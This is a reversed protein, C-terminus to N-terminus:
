GGPACVILASAVEQGEVRASCRYWWMGRKVKDATATIEVTEGPV